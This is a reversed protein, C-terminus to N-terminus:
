GGNNYREHDNAMGQYKQPPLVDKDSMSEAGHKYGHIFATKYHFAYVETAEDEVGHARLVSEVYEWHAEALEAATSM